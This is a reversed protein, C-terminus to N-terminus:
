RPLYKRKNSDFPCHKLIVYRDYDVAKVYYRGTWPAAFNVYISTIKISSFNSNLLLLSIKHHHKIEYILSRCNELNPM